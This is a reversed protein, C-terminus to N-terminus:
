DQLYNLINAQADKIVIKAMVKFKKSSLINKKSIKNEPDTSPKAYEKPTTNAPPKKLQKLKDYVKYITYFIHM